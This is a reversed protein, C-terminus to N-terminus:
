IAHWVKRTLCTLACSVTSCNGYKDTIWSTNDDRRINARSFRSISLGLLSIVKHTLHKRRSVTSTVFVPFFSLLSATWFDYMRAGRLTVKLGIKMVRAFNLHHSLCVRPQRCRSKVLLREFPTQRWEITKKDEKARGLGVNVVIKQLKPVENVNSLGLEKQLEAVYTSRYLENLRATTTTTPKKTTTAM